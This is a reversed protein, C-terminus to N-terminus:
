LSVTQKCLIRIFEIACGFDSHWEFIPDNDWSQKFIAVAWRLVIKAHLEHTELFRLVYEMFPPSDPSIRKRDLYCWSACVRLVRRMLRLCREDEFAFLVDIVNNQSQTPQIYQLAQLGSESVARFCAWLHHPTSSKSAYKRLFLPVFSVLAGLCIDIIHAAQLSDLQEKGPAQEDHHYAAAASDWLCSLVSDSDNKRACLHAFLFRMLEIDIPIKPSESAPGVSMFSKLLATPDSLVNVVSRTFYERGVDPENTSGPVYSECSIPTRRGMITLLDTADDSRNYGEICCLSTKDLELLVMYTTLRCLVSNSRVKRHKYCTSIVLNKDKFVHQSSLVDEEALERLLIDADKVTRLNETPDVTPNSRENRFDERVDRSRLGLPHILRYRAGYAEISRAMKWTSTDFIVQVFSKSDIRVQPDEQKKDQNVPSKTKLDSSVVEQMIAKEHLQETGHGEETTMNILQHSSLSQLLFKDMCTEAPIDKMTLAQAKTQM